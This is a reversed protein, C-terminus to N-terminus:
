TARFACHYVTRRCLQGNEAAVSEIYFNRVQLAAEHRAVLITSRSAAM